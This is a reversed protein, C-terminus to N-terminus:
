NFKWIVMQGSLEHPNNEIDGKSTACNDDNAAFRMKLTKQGYLSFSSKVVYHTSVEASRKANATTGMRIQNGDTVNYLDLWSQGCKQFLIWSDVM